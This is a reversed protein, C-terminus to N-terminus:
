ALQTMQHVAALCSMVLKNTPKEDQGETHECVKDKEIPQPREAGREEEGKRRRM